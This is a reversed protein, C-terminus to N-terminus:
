TMIFDLIGFFFKFFFMFEVGNEGQSVSNWGDEKEDGRDGQSKTKEM